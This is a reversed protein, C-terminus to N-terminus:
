VFLSSISLVALQDYGSRARMRDFLRPIFVASNLYYNDMDGVYIFLKDHIKAGLTAWDRQLIHSLDYNEKWYNAVERDIVGTQKDWIPKPCGDAGVPSYTAQWIDWQDGSRGNSGLAAAGQPPRACRSRRAFGNECM